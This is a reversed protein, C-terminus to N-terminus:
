WDQAEGANVLLAELAVGGGKGGDLLELVSSRRLAFAIEEFRRIRAARRLLSTPKPM